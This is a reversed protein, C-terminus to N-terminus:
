RTVTPATAYQWGKWNGISDWFHIITRTNGKVPTQNLVMGDQYLRNKDDFYERKGTGFKVVAIVCLLVAVGAGIYFAVHKWNTTKVAVVVGEVPEGDEVGM